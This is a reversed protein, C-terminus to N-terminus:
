VITAEASPKINAIGMGVNATCSLIVLVALLRGRLMGGYGVIPDTGAITTFHYGFIVYRNTPVFDINDRFEVSPVPENSQLQFDWRGLFRGYTITPM